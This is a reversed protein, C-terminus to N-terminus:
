AFVYQGHQNRSAMKLTMMELDAWPVTPTQHLTGNSMASDGLQFVAHTTRM